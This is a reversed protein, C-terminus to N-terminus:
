CIHNPMVIHKLISINDYKQNIHNIVSDVCQGIASLEILPRGPVDAGVPESGTIEGFIWRKDKSCITVFYAGSQAYDYGNLRNQKRRPLDDM